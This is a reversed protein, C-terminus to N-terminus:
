DLSEGVQTEGGAAGDEGSSSSSANERLSSFLWASYQALQERLAALEAVSGAAELEEGGGQQQQEANYLPQTQQRGDDYRALPLEASASEHRSESRDGGEEMSPRAYAGQHDATDHNYYPAPAAAPLAPEEEGGFFAVDSPQRARHMPHPEPLM